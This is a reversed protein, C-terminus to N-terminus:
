PLSDWTTASWTSRAPTTASWTSRTPTAASWTSRSPGAAAGGTACSCSWTSRAFGAALGSPALSWTSRSWTSRSYDVGGTAQDLLSNPALGQDALPPHDIAALRAADIEPLSDAWAAPSLLAGKVQDPTWSPHLELLDAVLGAIMPAAMSTGGARIYQGDIVCSPCMSAFASGPALDSVIHAGPAYVDPKAFGDQTTGRSSWDAITHAAVNASGHEDVAGVTIVYPDNAPAYQVADPADGRNGAAAVVVIGHLWAAEVAADLPDTAYSQPTASDLSLNVVRINYVHQFDVAFQLGYIVDLVTANGSDDSVKISILNADPAVGAYSGRLPDGPDRRESDGAVIGAVDTGHGYDDLATTAAPNTVAAAIVRSRGNRSRFDPLAGDIGTDIVAVGVHAGTGGLRWLAPADLSQNFTTQLQAPDPGDPEGQVRVPTNLSVSHVGPLSALAVARRASLELALGHIIDLRGLVRAALRRSEATARALPLDSSFQVITQIQREPHRAAVAPIRPDLPGAISALARAPSLRRASARPVAGAALVLVCAALISAAAWRPRRAPGPVTRM